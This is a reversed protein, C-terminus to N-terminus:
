GARTLIVALEECHNLMLPAWTRLTAGRRTPLLERWASFSREAAVIALNMHAASCRAVHAIEEGTAPNVVVDRREGSFWQGDILASGAVFDSRTLVKLFRAARGVMTPSKHRFAERVM